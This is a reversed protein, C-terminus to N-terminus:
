GFHLLDLCWMEFRVLFKLLHILELITLPAKRLLDRSHCKRDGINDVLSKCIYQFEIILCYKDGPHHNEIHFTELCDPHDLHEM